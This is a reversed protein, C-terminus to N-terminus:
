YIATSFIHLSIKAWCSNPVTGVVLACCCRTGVQSRFENGRHCKGWKPLSAAGGQSHQKKRVRKRRTHTDGHLHRDHTFLAKRQWQHLYRLKHVWSGELQEKWSPRTLAESTPPVRMCACVCVHMYAPKSACSESEKRDKGREEARERKREGVCERERNEKQRCGARHELETDAEPCTKLFVAM